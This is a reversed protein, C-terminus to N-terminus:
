EFLHPALLARPIGFEKEAKVIYKDPFRGQWSAHITQRSVGMKEAVKPIGGAKKVCYSFWGKPSLKHKPTGDKNFLEDDWHTKSM